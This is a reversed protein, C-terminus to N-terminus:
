TSNASTSTFGAPNSVWGYTNGSVADAGISINNGFCIAKDGDTSAAPLPNVTVPYVTPTFAHCGNSATYDVSVHKIGDSEWTINVTSDTSSGGSTIIGGASISWSYLSKGAETKYINGSSSMCVVSSGSVSPVPINPKYALTIRNSTDTYIGDVDVQVYYSGVESAIFVPNTGGEIPSNDKHWQYTRGQCDSAILQVLEGPCLNTDGVAVILLRPNYTITDMNTLSWKGYSDCSRINVYHQGRTLCASDVHFNLDSLNIGSLIPVHTALGFGPDTDIFYEVRTITPLVINQGEKYFPRVATLGWKQNADKARIYLNHFGATQAAMDIPIVLDPLNTGSTIPVNTALGNGPDTDIFYEVQTVNPVAAILSADKYFARVATLGWKQNADKARIYLSHFGLTQSAMDISFVINGLNAGPTIPVNTALGNGPDTDIFYEIQIIDQAWATSCCLLCILVSTFGRRFLQIRLGKLYYYLSKRM